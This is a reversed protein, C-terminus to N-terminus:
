LIKEEVALVVEHDAGGGPWPDNLMKTLMKTVGIRVFGNDLLEAELLPTSNGVAFVTAVLGDEFGLRAELPPLEATRLHGSLLYRLHGGSWGLTGRAADPRQDAFRMYVDRLRFSGALFLDYGGLWPNVAGARLDGAISIAARGPAFNMTGGLSLHQGHLTWAYGPFRQLLTAPRFSWGIRGLDQGHLRLQGSGAWVTGRTDGLSVGPIHAALPVLLRAPAFALSFMLFALIGLIVLGRVRGSNRARM